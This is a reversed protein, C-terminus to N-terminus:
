ASLRTPFRAETELWSAFDRTETATLHLAHKTRRMLIDEATEAWEEDILFRAEKEYLQAGFHRGLDAMATAGALLGGARTGYLRGYHRALTDPLWPHAARFSELWREFDADPMEGGPMSAAAMWAPGLQPLFPALRDLAHEALKRFTTIKGGFVSLLPARGDPQAPEVDFVYDRTVASPNAASDDYLPRVGSFSHVVEAPTPPQRFYRGLVELLYATEAEDVVVDEPRGEVPIDTTGILALDGEYPNVFIVRKDTNQLLYAQNGDWFKRTVLHSGKVLRVHRSSNVGLGQALVQEVWPGAANVVAKARVRRRTQDRRDELTVEWLAGDRRGGALATRTLIEAGRARADLANLVVLRADDVWCDSYEFAKGFEPRLPRGEPDRRLDLVQSAPLLKRGGLHDYLFLGLRVLWAPRMAPVHPLVFRMPWIIHPAARLLVEREILAERVLRFEYYELYRLGGHVLKGSRSSTGQALDDQECLLVKLGRGAADRAIGTGNVGGGVVVLDFLEM